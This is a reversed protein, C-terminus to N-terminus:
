GNTMVMRTENTLVALIQAHDPQALGHGWRRVRRLHDFYIVSMAPVQRIGAVEPLLLELCRSADRNADSLLHFPLQLQERFASLAYISDISMGVVRIHLPELVSYQDRYWALLRESEPTFALPFSLLLLGNAEKLLEGFSLNNGETSPLAYKYLAQILRM